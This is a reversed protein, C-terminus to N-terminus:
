FKWTQETLYKNSIKAIYRFFLVAFITNYIAEPVIKNTLVVTINSNTRSLYLFLYVILEKVITGTFVFFGPVFVSDKFVKREVNGIAFATLMCAISNMGFAGQFFIDELVGGAVGVITGMPNGKILTICIVFVLVIDPKVGFIKIYEFLSNQFSILVLLIVPIIFRRM